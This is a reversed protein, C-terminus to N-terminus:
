NQRNALELRAIPTSENTGVGPQLDNRRAAWGL